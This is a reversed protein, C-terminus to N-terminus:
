FEAPNIKKWKSCFRVNGKCGGTLLKAPAPARTSHAGQVVCLVRGSGAVGGEGQRRGRAVGIIGQGNLNDAGPSARVRLTDCGNTSLDSLGVDHQQSPPGSEDLQAAVSRVISPGIPRNPEDGRARPPAAGSVCSGSRGHADSAASPIGDPLSPRVDCRM